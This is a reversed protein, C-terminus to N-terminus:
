EGQNISTAMSQCYAKQKHHRYFAVGQHHACRNAFLKNETKDIVAQYKTIKNILRKYYLKNFLLSVKTCCLGFPVFFAPLSTILSPKSHIDM